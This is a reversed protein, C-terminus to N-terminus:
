FSYRAHPLVSQLLTSGKRDVCEGNGFTRLGSDLQIDQPITKNVRNLIQKQITFKSEFVNAKDYIPNTSSHTDLLTYFTHAKQQYDITKTAKAITQATFPPYSTAHKVACGKLGDSVACFPTSQKISCASITITLLTIVFFPLTKKFM